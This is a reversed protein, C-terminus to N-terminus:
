FSPTGPTHIDFVRIPGVGSSFRKEDFRKPSLYWAQSVKRMSSLIAAAVAQMKSGTLGLELNAGGSGYIDLYQDDLYEVLGLLDDSDIRTVSANPYNQCIFEAAYTAVRARPTDGLCSRGSFPGPDSLKKM